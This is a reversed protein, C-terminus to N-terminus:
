GSAREAAPADALTALHRGFQRMVFLHAVAQTLRYLAWPLRPAFDHIAALLCEGDLIERFELRPRNQAGPQALVGGTVSFVARDPTSRDPAHTLELVPRSLPRVYFRAVWQAGAEDVRVRLFPGAFGDLWRMYERGAWEADRGRPLSFRQVSRVLQAERVAEDDQQRHSHRANPFPTGDPRVAERLAEKFSLADPALVAQLPNPRAVMDHRLSAVLPGVLARPSGSVLSVWLTSLRPTLVPVGSTSREVGLVEATQELMERYSMVEPGAIDFAGEFRDPAGLVLRFARVVDRLAIPQTDSETWAPLLMAPLRRVLNVLIRLSSGGQGVVLGTRLTTVPVGHAALTREVEWRSRLHRSLDTTDEPLLGSLYVIQRVGAQEAARAFNDALILDLDAFTGQTLRSSPLMSHVLYIALDAGDLGREVERLSYLDCHRWRIQDGEDTQAARAPSRTLGVLRYSAPLAQRLATGVFGSAGAIAVTPREDTSTAESAAPPEPAAPPPPDPAM